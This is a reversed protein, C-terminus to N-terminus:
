LNEQLNAAEDILYQQRIKIDRINSLIESSLNIGGNTSKLQSIKHDLKDYEMLLQQYREAKDM